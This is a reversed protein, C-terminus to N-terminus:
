TSKKITSIPPSGIEPSAVSFHGSSLTLTRGLDTNATSIATVGSSVSATTSVLAALQDPIRQSLNQVQARLQSVEPELKAIYPKLAELQDTVVDHKKNALTLQEKLAKNEANVGRIEGDDNSGKMKWGVGWAILLLPLIIWPATMVVTWQDHWFQGTFLQDM